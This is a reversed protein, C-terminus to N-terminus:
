RWTAGCPSLGIFVHARHPVTPGPIIWSAICVRPLNMPNSSVVGSLGVDPTLVGGQHKEFFLDLFENCQVLVFMGWPAGLAQFYPNM